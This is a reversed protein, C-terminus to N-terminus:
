LIAYSTRSDYPFREIRLNKIGISEMVAITEGHWTDNNLEDFAIVSGKPM